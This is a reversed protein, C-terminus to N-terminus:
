VWDSRPEMAGGIGSQHGECLAAPHVDLRWRARLARKLAEAAAGYAELNRHELEIRTRDPGEPIFLVEVDTKLDAITTGIAMSRGPSSRDRLGNTLLSMVSVTSTAKRISGTGGVVPMRPEVISARAPAEGITHTDLPWWATMDVFADFAREQSVDVVISRKVSIGTTSSM